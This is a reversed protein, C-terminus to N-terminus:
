KRQALEPDQPRYPNKIAINRYSAAFECLLRSFRWYAALVVGHGIGIVLGVIMKGATLNNASNTCSQGSHCDDWGECL